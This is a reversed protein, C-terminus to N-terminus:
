LKRAAGILDRLMDAADDYADAEGTLSEFRSPYHKAAAVASDRKGELYEILDLSPKVMVGRLTQEFERIKPMLYTDRVREVVCSSGNHIEEWQRCAGSYLRLLDHFQYINWALSAAPDYKFHWRTELDAQAMARYEENQRQLMGTLVDGIAEQTVETVIRVM